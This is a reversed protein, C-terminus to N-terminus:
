ITISLAIAALLAIVLGVYQHKLLKEKGIFIGLLVAIIIYSESIAVTIGIPAVTMAIAFAIWAANDLVMMPIVIKPYSIVHKFTEKMKGQILIFISSGILSFLSIVFNIVLPNTERAGWGVFFNTGGMLLAALISVPVGKELFFKRDLKGGRYSVLVLGLILAVMFIIQNLGLVERLVLSALIAATPIEMSWTPEIVSIKGEKLAEFELLAAVFLFGGATMLIFFTKNIGEWFNALDTWVFPLLLVTGFLTILFLTQWDGIKRASKQIFFDGVGWCIMAIFATIIGLSM